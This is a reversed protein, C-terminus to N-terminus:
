HLLQAFAAANTPGFAALYVQRGTVPDELTLQGDAHRAIRFPVDAGAGRSRRDRALGRLVARLFGNTGSALVAVESRDRADLVGVAGNSRDEFLLERSEVAASTDVDVVSTGTLRVAAVAIFTLAILGAAGLLPARPFSRDTLDTM